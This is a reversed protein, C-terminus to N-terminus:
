LNRSFFAKLNEVTQDEESRQIERKNERERLRARTQFLFRLCFRRFCMFRSLTEDCLSTSRMEKKSKERFFDFAVFRSCDGLCVDCMRTPTSWWRPSWSSACIVISSSRSSSIVSSSCFFLLFLLHLTAFAIKCANSSCDLVFAPANKEKM